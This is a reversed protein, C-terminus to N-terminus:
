TPIGPPGPSFYGPKDTPLYVAAESAFDRVRDDPNYALGVATFDTFYDPEKGPLAPLLYKAVLSFAIEYGVPIDDPYTDIDPNEDLICLYRIETKTRRPFFRIPYGEALHNVIAVFLDRGGSTTASYWLQAYYRIGRIQDEETNDALEWRARKVVFKQRIVVAGNLVEGAFALDLTITSVVNLDKDLLEVKPEAVSLEWTDDWGM